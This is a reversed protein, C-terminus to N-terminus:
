GLNASEEEEKVKVAEERGEDGVTNSCPGPVFIPYVNIYLGQLNGEQAAPYKEFPEFIMSIVLGNQYM